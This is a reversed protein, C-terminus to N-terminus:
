GRIWRSLHAPTHVESRGGHPHGHIQRAHGLALDLAPATNHYIAAIPYEPQIGPVPPLHMDWLFRHFGAQNSLRQPPRVWYAPIALEPDPPPVPDNSAYRRVVNGASDAIELVVPSSTGSKLYYDIMAGDPPNPASPFDPPLPTDSNTDWRVRYTLQPAFLYANAALASADLQRLPTINDLIWFGRGHTAALLDDDKIALDRVSTAPMNLRLSRGTTVMM